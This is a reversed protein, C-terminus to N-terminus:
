EEWVAQRDWVEQEAAFFEQAMQRGEEARFLYGEQLLDRLHQRRQEELYYELATRIFQSRSFQLRASANEIQQLLAPPITIMVRQMTTTSSM